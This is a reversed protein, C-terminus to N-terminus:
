RCPIGAWWTEPWSRELREAVGQLLEAEVIGFRGPQASTANLVGMVIRDRVLPLAIESQIARYAAVYGPFRRMEAVIQVARELACSGVVGDGWAM